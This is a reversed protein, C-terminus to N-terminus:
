IKVNDDGSHKCIENMDELLVYRKCNNKFYVVGVKERETIEKFCYFIERGLHDFDCDTGILGKINIQTFGVVVGDFEAKVRERYTKEVAGGDFESLDALKEDIKYAIATKANAASSTLSGFEDYMGIYVGDKVKKLYAKCHVKSFLKM